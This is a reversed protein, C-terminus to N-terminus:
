YCKCTQKFAGKCYGGKYGRIGKCHSHCQYQNFPCGYG